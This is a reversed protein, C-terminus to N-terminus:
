RHLVMPAASFVVQIAEVVGVLYLLFKVTKFAGAMEDRDRELPVLRRDLTTRYENEIRSAMERGDRELQEARRIHESLMTGLQGMANNRAAVELEMRDHTVFSHQSIRMEAVDEKISSIHAELRALVVPTQDRRDGIIDEGDM